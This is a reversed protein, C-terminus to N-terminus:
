FTGIEISLSYNRWKFAIFSGFGVSDQKAKDKLLRIFQNLILRIENIIQGNNEEYYFILSDKMSQTFFLVPQHKLCNAAYQMRGTKQFEHFFTKGRPIITKWVRERLQLELVFPMESHNRM